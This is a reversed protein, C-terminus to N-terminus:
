GEKGPATIKQLIFDDHSNKIRWTQNILGNGFPEVELQNQLLNYASFIEEMM